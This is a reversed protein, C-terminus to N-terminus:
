YDDGRSVVEKKHPHLLITHEFQATYSGKVDVLPPYDNVVGARVLQNLALLYKEQGLRDLYRRCWPLTGFNDSIVQRLQRASDPVSVSEMGSNLSYHSCEGESVVYGAGTTGFTEIAFTEGEEMKTQDGNPVIPVSKDGHISYDLISHGNLNRICKIPYTKGNLELEYSEMAEQIASGIDTLRVDIGANKVGTNTADKVAALLNDYKHDMTFTFASDVIHGNIHVGIDVKMVDEYKLVVKDGANPTYHAAVHNVSLGTPFGIGGALLSDASAYARVSDEILNAIETMTMGPKISSQAKHRVRRHIEAGKRFDQWRNNKQRDLYRKEEDTTRYSNVELPYEMWEGEPFIGEPYSSDIATLKKKKKKNAKKKKKKKDDSVEGDHEENGEIDEIKPEEVALNDVKQELDKVETM